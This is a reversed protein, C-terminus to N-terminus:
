CIEPIYSMSLIWFDILLYQESHIKIGFFADYFLRFIKITNAYFQCFVKQCGELDWSYGQRVGDGWSKPFFIELNQFMCEIKRIFKDLKILRILSGSWSKNLMQIERNNLKIIDVKIMFWKM